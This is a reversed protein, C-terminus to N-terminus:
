AHHLLYYIMAISGFGCALGALLVLLLAPPLVDEHSGSVARSFMGVLGLACFALCGAIIWLFIIMKKQYFRASAKGLFQSKGEHSRSELGGCRSSEVCCRWASELNGARTPPSSVAM